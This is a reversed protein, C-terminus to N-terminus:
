RKRRAKREYEKEKDGEIYMCAWLFAKERNDMALYEAPRIHYNKLLLFM